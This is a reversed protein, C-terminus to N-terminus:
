YALPWCGKFGATSMQACLGTVSDRSSPPGVVVRYITGLGRASQDSEVIDPVKGQLAPYKQQLDAFMKLAEVRSKQFGLVAVFGSTKAPTAAAVKPVPQKVVAVRM